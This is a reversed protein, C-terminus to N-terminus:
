RRILSKSIWSKEHEFKKRFHIFEVKPYEALQLIYSDPHLNPPFQIAQHLEHDDFHNRCATQMETTEKFRRTWDYSEQTTLRPVERTIKCIKGMLKEYPRRGIEHLETWANGVVNAGIIVRKLGPVASLRDLVQDLKWLRQNSM